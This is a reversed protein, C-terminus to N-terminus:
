SSEGPDCTQNTDGRATEAAALLDDIALLEETSLPPRDLARGLVGRLAKIVAVDAASSISSRCLAVAEAEDLRRELRRITLAQGQSVATVREVAVTQRDVQHRLAQGNLTLGLVAVFGAFVAIVVAVAKLVTIKKDALEDEAVITALRRRDVEAEAEVDHATPHDDTM